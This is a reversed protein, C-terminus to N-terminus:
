WIKARNEPTRYLKDEINTKYTKHFDDCHEVMGNVRFKEDPHPDSLTFQRKLGKRTHGCECTAFSIFFKEIEEGSVTNSVFKNKLCDLAIELGGLDAISEGIVLGGKLNLGPLVEFKDAQDIIIKARKRFAMQDEETQWDRMNGEADFHCGQDDFGHTLEHAIVAGIGGMNTAYSANPDFFPAQLIAAPFCIVLRNPDHYANVTQPNMSWDIRSVPRHLRKMDYATEHEESAIINELYSDATVNLKSYDRWRDPYGILVNINGLKKLAYMKTEDTMWGLNMIREAFTDRVDEVLQLVQKKSSEPFYRQIYLQGLAEGLAFDLMGLVRKWLPPMEKVGSLEKGFFSFKHEAFEESIRPAFSLFTQWKLYIRWSELPMSSVRENIFTFFEPQDVTIKDDTKWGLEKAYDKWTIAPYRTKLDKFSIQNYNKEVDRLETSSRSKKAISLEFDWVITKLIAPTPALEPVLLCSKEIFKIYKERVSHMKESDELYYDRDPLTLGSQHLRLIHRKSDRDDADMIACWPDNVGIRHLYGILGSLSLKDVNDIMNFIKRLADFNKQKHKDFNIGSLYFDRIQQEPTGSTLDSQKTLEECITRLNHLSKERLVNFTSWRGETDPIPNAALWKSNVYRFFDDQPRIKTNLREPIGLDTIKIEDGITM